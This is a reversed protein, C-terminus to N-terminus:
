GRGGVPACLPYEALVNGHEGRAVVELASWYVGMSSLISRTIALVARMNEGHVMANREKWMTEVCISSALVLFENFAPSDDRPIIGEDLPANNRKM